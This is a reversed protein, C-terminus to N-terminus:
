QNQFSSFNAPVAPSKPTSKKKNRDAVIFLRYCFTTQGYLGEPGFALEPPIKIYASGGKRLLNLGEEFGKIFTGSGVVWQFGGPNFSESNEIVSGTECNYWIWYILVSDGVKLKKGKEKEEIKYELGSKTKEWCCKQFDQATVSTTIVKLFLLFFIKTM